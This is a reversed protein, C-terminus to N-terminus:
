DVKQNIEQNAICKKSFFCATELNTQVISFERSSPCMESLEDLLTNFLKAIKDAKNLGEENLRHVRFLPSNM